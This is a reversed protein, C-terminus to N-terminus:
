TLRTVVIFAAPRVARASVVGPRSVTVVGTAAVIGLIALIAVRGIRCVGGICGVWRSLAVLRFCRGGGLGRLRGVVAARVVTARAVAAVTAVRAVLPRGAAERRNRASCATPMTLMASM